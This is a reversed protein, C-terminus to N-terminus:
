DHYITMKKQTILLVAFAMAIMTGITIMMMTGKGGTSPLEVGRSNEVTTSTATYNIRNYGEGATEADIVNGKGEGDNDYVVFFSNNTVGVTVEHPAPLLNYGNPAKEEKLYYTGAELGLIVLKGNVQSTVENKQTTEWNEGLYAELYDKYKERSTERFEGSVITNLDDLIYVGKIDTPIVHVPDSTCAKDRWVTFVADALRAGNDADVKNLGLAYTTVTTTSPDDPGDTTDHTWSLDATNFLNPENPAAGIHAGPEVSAEYKVVVDVPSPYISKANEGYTLEFDNTTGNFHYNDMWPIVIDFADFGRHVLYWQANDATKEYGTWDGLWTWEGTAHTGEIGHYHGRELKTDNVWVEIKDFEVWLANGKTDAITYYKIQKEGDYNTATFEVKFDVVDGVSSSTDKVWNGEADKIFKDFGSGPKQNKDIVDVDPTNSTITVATGTGKDILYYGYSLKDFAVTKSDAVKTELCLTGNADLARVMTALYTFIAEDSTATKNRSVLGTAIVYTFYANSITGNEDDVIADEGTFMYTYIPNAVDVDNEDKVTESLSYSVTDLTGDGDTDEANEDYAADFIKYLKYTHDKTANTITISGTGTNAFATVSLSFVLALALIFSFLRKM